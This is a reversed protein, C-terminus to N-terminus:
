VQPRQHHCIRTRWWIDNPQAGAAQGVAEGNALAMMKRSESQYAPISASFKFTIPFYQRTSFHASVKFPKQTIHSFVNVFALAQATTVV